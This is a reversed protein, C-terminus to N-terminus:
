KGTALRDALQRPLGAALIKRQASERDYSVRGYTLCDKSPEYLLYAARWDGDRPQGVSGPNILYRAAPRLPFEMRAIKARPLEPQCSSMCGDELSFGGQLHTHGIFTMRPTPGSPAVVTAPREGDFRQPSEAASVKLCALAQDCSVIYEDEDLPSGHALRAGAFFQPGRALEGLWDLLDSPMQARTWEIAQRAPWNFDSLREPHAAAADHNGRVAAQCRDRTWLTCEVPNAGYGVIDGLCIIEAYAGETADLVAELAEWNAHIDSLVLLAKSPAPM